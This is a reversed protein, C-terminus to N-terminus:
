EKPSPAESCPLAETGASRVPGNQSGQWRGPPRHRSETPGTQVSYGPRSTSGTRAESPSHFVSLKATEPAGIVSRPSGDVWGAGPTAVCTPTKASRTAPLAKSTSGCSTAAIWAPGLSMLQRSPPSGGSTM